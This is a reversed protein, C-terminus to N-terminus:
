ATGGGLHIVLVAVTRKTYNSNIPHRWRTVAIFAITLNSLYTTMVKKSTVV